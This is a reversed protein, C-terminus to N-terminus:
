ETMEESSSLTTKQCERLVIDYIRKADVRQIVHVLKGNEDRTIVGSKADIVLSMEQSKKVLSDDVAVLATVVDWLYYNKQDTSMYGRTVFAGEGCENKLRELFELSLPLDNTADLPVLVIDIDSHKFVELAAEIDAFVNWEARTDHVNGNVDIAGGMWYLSSIKKGIEPNEKLAAAVSTLPGLVVVKAKESLSLLQDVMFLHAAKESLPSKESQDANLFTNKWIKMGDIKFEDPFHNLGETEGESTIVHKTHDFKSLLIRNAPVAYEIITDGPTVSVGVLNVTENACLLFLSIFDDVGGDHDLYLPVSACLIVFLVLLSVRM